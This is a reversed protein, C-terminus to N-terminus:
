ELLEPWLSPAYSQNKIVLRGHYLQHLLPYPGVPADSNFTAECYKVFERM